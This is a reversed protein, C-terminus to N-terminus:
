LNNPQRSNIMQRRSADAHAWFDDASVVQGGASNSPNVSVQNKNNVDLINNDGNVLNVAYLGDEFTVTFPFKIEVKRIYNIGSLTVQTNHDHTPLSIWRGEPNDELDRLTKRFDDVDLERFEYPSLAILTMDAKPVFIVGTVWNISIAM